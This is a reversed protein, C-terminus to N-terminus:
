VQGIFFGLCVVVEREPRSKPAGRMHEEEKETLDGNQGPADSSKLVSLSLLILHKQGNHRDSM